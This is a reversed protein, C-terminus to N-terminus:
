KTIYKKSSVQLYDAARVIKERSPFLIHLDGILGPMTPMIFTNVIMIELVIGATIVGLPPLQSQTWYDSCQVARDVFSCGLSSLARWDQWQPQNSSAPPGEAQCAWRGGLVVQSAAGRM